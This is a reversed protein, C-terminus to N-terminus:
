HPTEGSYVNNGELIYQFTSLTHRYRKVNKNNETNKM